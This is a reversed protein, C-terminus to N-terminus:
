WEIGYKELIHIYSNLGYESHEEEFRYVAAVFGRVLESYEAFPMQIPHESTGDNERDVIWEGLEDQQIKELMDTLEAYMKAM